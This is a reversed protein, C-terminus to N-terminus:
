EECQEGQAQRQQSSTKTVAGEREEFGSHMKIRKADAVTAVEILAAFIIKRTWEDVVDVM